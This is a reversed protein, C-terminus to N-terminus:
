FDFIKGNVITNKVKLKSNLIVLDADYGPAIMGKHEIRMIKAPNTSAMKFAQDLPLGFKVLNQVGKIMTLGSGAIVDKCGAHESAVNTEDAKAYFCKNFYVERGNAFLKDDKQMTPKLADTVLVLKDIPKNVAL